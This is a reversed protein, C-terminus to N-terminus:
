TAPWFVDGTERTMEGPCKCKICRVDAFQENSWMSDVLEQWEHECANWESM